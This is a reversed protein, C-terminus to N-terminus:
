NNRYESQWVDALNALSQLAIVIVGLILARLDVENNTFSTILTAVALLATTAVGSRLVWKVVKKVKENAAESKSVEQKKTAM